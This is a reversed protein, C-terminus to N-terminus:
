VNLSPTIAFRAHVKSEKLESYVFNYHYKLLILIMIMIYVFLIQSTLWFEVKGILVMKWKREMLKKNVQFSQDIEFYLRNRNKKWFNNSIECM